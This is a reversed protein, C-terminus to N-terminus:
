KRTLGSIKKGQRALSSYLEDYCAIIKQENFKESVCKRANEGLRRRLNGNEILELIKRSFAEHDSAPVLFGTEGDIVVEPNGGVNTAVAPLSMTGYEILTNSLGESASTLVGIDFLRMMSIPNEVEERMLVVSGLDLDGILARIKKEYDPDRSGVIVFRADNREDVVMRAARLFMEYNKVPRVNAVIGIVPAGDRIGLDSRQVKERSGDKVRDYAVPNYIVRIRDSSVGECTILHNRVANCNVVFHQIFKNLFRIWHLRSPRYWYGMNRRAVVLKCSRAFATALLGLIESDPFFAHIIDTKKKRMVGALFRQARVLELPKGFSEFNLYIPKLGHQIFAYYSEKALVLQVDYKRKPLRDLLFSIHQESGGATTHMQDVLFLIGIKGERDGLAM